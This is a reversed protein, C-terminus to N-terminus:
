ENFSKGETSIRERIEEWVSDPIETGIRKVVYSSLLAGLWACKKLSDGNLYGHLFGGAYFEGAGTADITNVSLAEMFEKRNGKRIWSGRKGMTVVMIECLPALQDCSESASKETLARAERENCFLIDVYKELIDYIFEKNRRVVEVNGLDLSIKVKKEKALKLVQLVLDQDFLQYGEIHFLKLKESWIGDNLRLSSLSHSAGLYTRFTREGDPTILCIAQGTPLSGKEFLPVIGLAKLNKIYYTGEEDNGIKGIIACRDGLQAMGKIVNSGSGGMVIKSAGIRQDLIARFTTYDIPAWSGKENSIPKLEADSILFYHDIIAAGLTLVEYSQNEIPPSEIGHGALTLSLFFFLYSHLKQIM